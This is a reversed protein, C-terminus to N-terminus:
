LLVKVQACHFEEWRLWLASCQTTQVLVLLLLKDSSCDTWILHILNIKIHESINKKQYVLVPAASSVWLFATQLPINTACECKTKLDFHPIQKGKGAGTVLARKGAFSIEMATTRSWGYVSLVCIITVSTFDHSRSRVLEVQLQLVDRRVWVSVTRAYKCPETHKWTTCFGSFITYCRIHEDSVGRDQRWGAPLRPQTNRKAWVNFEPFVFKWVDLRISHLWRSWWAVAPLCLLEVCLLCSHFGKEM